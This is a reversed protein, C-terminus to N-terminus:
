MKLFPKRKETASCRLYKMDVVVEAFMALIVHELSSCAISGVWLAFLALSLREQALELGHITEVAGVCNANVPGDRRPRVTQNEDHLQEYAPVEAGHQLVGLLRKELLSRPPDDSVDTRAHMKKMALLGDM